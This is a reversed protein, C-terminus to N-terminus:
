FLTARDSINWEVISLISEIIDLFTQQFQRERDVYKDLGFEPPLESPVAIVDDGLPNPSKLYAFKIKDGKYILPYTKDLEKRLLFENYLIAGRVHAPTGKRYLKTEDYYEELVKCGRPFAIKEFPFSSYESKFNKVYEKADDCTGKMIIGFIDKIAKRCVAPTSSKVAEIGMIKLKQGNSRIGEEDLVNLIYNKAGRWIGKDAIIERKMNFKQEYVSCYKGLEDFWTALKPEIVKKCFSDIIDVKEDRTMEPKTIKEVIKDFNIYISDTDMAIIYDVGETKLLGNLYINMKKEIYQIIFQGTLTIAQANDISFYRFWRNGVSGFGSNLLIKFAYQMNHYVSIEKEIEYSTNGDAKKKKAAMMRKKYIVRNDFLMKMIQPLFGHKEKSYLCMNAAVACGEKDIKNLGDNLLDTMDMATLKKVFTEPSINFCMIIYPYLSTLDFSINWGYASEKVEKVFGGEFTKDLNNAKPPVVINRSMLFDHCLGDWARITGFMDSANVKAIYAMTYMLQLMGLKQELLEILEVDRINYDLFLEFNREYLDDLSRYGLERYDLKKKGLVDESIYDLSYSEQTKFSFKKYILMYDLVQIGVPTYIEQEKGHSVITKKSLKNWPSLRKAQDENLVKTIRRVLYPLDYGEINWGTLCDPIWKEDNWYDLFRSLLDAEDQCLVYEVNDSKPKYYRCGFTVSKGNKRMTIATVARDAAVIDGFGAHSDVEIDIAVVSILKPDYEIQGRYNDWIYLYDFSTIGYIKFNEIGEYKRIYQHAAGISPFNIREVSKGELTKYSSPRNSPIFLFPQFKFSEKIRRGEEYGILLIDNGSTSVDVYFRM